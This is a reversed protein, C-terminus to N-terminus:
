RETQPPQKIEISTIRIEQNHVKDRLQALLTMNTNLIYGGLACMASMAIGGVWTTAIWGGRARNAMADSRKIHADLLSKQEVAGNQTAQVEKAIARTALSTDHISRNIQLLVLLVAREKPEVSTQILAQIEKDTQTTM